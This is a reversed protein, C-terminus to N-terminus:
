ARPRPDQDAAGDLDARFRRPDIAPTDRFATLVATASVFRRRRMPILEAVATGNRTVVFSAGADVARMVEGSDNRLERQTIERDMYCM